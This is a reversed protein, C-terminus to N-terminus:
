GFVSYYSAAYTKFDHLRIPYGSFTGLASWYRSPILGINDANQDAYAWTDCRHDTSAALSKTLLLVAKIQFCGNVLLRAEADYRQQSIFWQDM